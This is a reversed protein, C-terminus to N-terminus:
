PTRGSVLEMTHALITAHVDPVCPRADIVAFRDPQRRAQQLFGQRVSEHFSQEEQEIRDFLARSRARGLGVETPLDLLYTRHPWCDGVAVENIAKVQEEGLGRAIGQYVISSDVFRDCIVITGADLAPRIVRRTLEVRSTAFLYAEALDTFKPVHHGLLLGRIVNGFPTGGPERLTIVEHGATRLREALLKIQTTKGCGEIGEFTIFLGTM